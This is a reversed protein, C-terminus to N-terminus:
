MNKLISNPQNAEYKCGATPCLTYNCKTEELYFHLIILYGRFASFHAQSRIYTFNITVHFIGYFIDASDFCYGLYHGEEDHLKLM